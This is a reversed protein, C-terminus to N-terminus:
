LKTSIYVFFFSNNRKFKVIPIQHKLRSLRITNLNYFVNIHGDKYDYLNLNDVSFNIYMLIYIYIICYKIKNIKLVNLILNHNTIHKLQTHINLKKATM